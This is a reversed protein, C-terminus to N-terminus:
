QLSYPDYEDPTVPMTPTLLGHLRKASELYAALQKRYEELHRLGNQLQQEGADDTIGFRRYLDLLSNDEAILHDTEEVMKHLNDIYHQLDHPM